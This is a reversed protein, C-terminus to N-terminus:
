LIIHPFSAQWYIATTIAGSATGAVTAMLALLLMRTRLRRTSCMSWGVLAAIPAGGLSGIALWLPAAILLSYQPWPEIGARRRLEPNPHRQQSIQDFEYAEHMQAVWISLCVVFGVVAGSLLGLIM